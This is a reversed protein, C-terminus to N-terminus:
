VDKLTFPAIGRMSQDISLPRLASPAARRDAEIALAREHSRRHGM